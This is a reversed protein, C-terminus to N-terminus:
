FFASVSCWHLWAEVYIQDSGCFSHLFDLLAQHFYQEFWSILAFLLKFDYFPSSSIIEIALFIAM